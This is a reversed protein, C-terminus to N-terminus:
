QGGGEGASPSPPRGTLQRLAKMIGVYGTCRCLHGSLVDELDEDSLGRGMVEPVASMVIGPTCFGCQLAHHANFAQFIEGFEEKVAIGEITEIAAGQVSVALILCSRVAQGDVMVTCAGCVGHECGVHTGTLRAQERLFDSLLMRPEVAARYERGNVQLRVTALEGSDRWPVAQGAQGTSVAKM